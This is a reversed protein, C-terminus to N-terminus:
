RRDFIDHQNGLEHALSTIITRPGVCIKEGRDIAQRVDDEAVFEVPRPSPSRAVAERETGETAKRVTASAVPSAGRPPEPPQMERAAVAPERRAESTRSRAAPGVPEPAIAGIIGRGRLFDQVRRELNEATPPEPATPEPATTTTAASRPAPAAVTSSEFPRIGYALRKINILHQPGVNDSTINNGWSGCGLTMSPFLGTTLGVAGVAAVTNVLVRHAPKHLGFQMVVEDDQSHIVMTHGLGGFSLLEKCRECGQQWDAVEYLALVPSLKEHSLPYQPGVGDLPCILVRTGEPVTIGAAKAITTAPRGVMKPNVMMARLNILVPALRECEDPQLIHGGQEQIAALVQERIARDYTISQESSCLTGNDFTTGSFIDRVAQQVDATREIYAPVNGPGVGYAPKGASYAAKVMASGGTALIVDTDDCRMLEETGEMSVVTMCGIIGRPAGASVAAEHLVDASAKICAKAAPHPSLVIGCRAKLAILCKFLATSTPNTTPIIAAVVGVPEAIEFVRQERDERLVGVTPMGRMAEVVNRLVFDNKAVKDAQKGFGTEECAMTALRESERLGAAAMAEVIADIQEQTFQEIQRQAAVAARALTRAEHISRLDRDFDPPSSM